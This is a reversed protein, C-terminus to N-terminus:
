VGNVVATAGEAIRGLLDITGSVLRTASQPDQVVLYLLLAIISWTLVKKV